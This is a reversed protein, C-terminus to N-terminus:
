RLQACYQMVYIVEELGYNGDGSVDAEPFVIDIEIGSILQLGKIADELDLVGDDDIDGPQVDALVDVLIAATAVSTDGDSETAIATVTLTFDRGDGSPTITLGPLQDPNLTWSGDFNNEGASLNAGSPVNSIRIALTESGDPDNLSAEISLPIPTDEDGSAEPVVTLNPISALASVVVAIEHDTTATDANATEVSTASLTLTFDDGSDPVPTLALEALLDASVTWIGGGNDTGVSLTAGIPVGSIEVPNLTESGDTDVLAVSEINLPIVTNENGSVEAPASVAPPDAVANVTVEIDAMAEATDNNATEIARVTVTLTFDTDSNAPPTVSLGSLLAPAITWTGNANDLGASLSAGDPVGSVTANDLTESGDTDILAPSEMSLPIEADEAGGIAATVNLLPTNAVPHIVLTYTAPESYAMGDTARYVFTQTGSDYALPTYTFEGTGANVIDATGNAPPTVIGFTLSDNELDGGVLFADVPTNEDTEFTIDGVSPPTEMPFFYAAGSNAGSSRENYAGALVIDGSASVACGLLNGEDGDSATRKSRFEWTGINRRYIYVAGADPADEDDQMAGVVAHDSTITVGSGFAAGATGDAATLKGQNTWGSVGRQFIYASGSGSGMDDDGEAGVIMLDGAICVTGGFYDFAASDGGMLRAQRTWTGSRQFMYVAGSDEGAADSRDAGIAAYDGSISVARGFFDFAAPTDATLKAQETWSAGSRYFIYAAGYYSGDGDGEAGVIAYAGSIAVSCGFNDSAAGDSPTLKAQQTWSSGSRLFVYASGSGSGNDDDGPAGVIAYDGSIGASRGFNDMSTGDSATLKSSQTWSGGTDNFVYAAGSGNGSASDGEAGVIAYNGSVCVSIGFKKGATGDSPLIKVENFLSGNVQRVEITQPNNQAVDATVTITATRGTDLNEEYSVAMTGANTGSEGSTIALWSDSSEATWNMDGLGTNSVQFVASGPLMPVDKRVPTLSLVPGTAQVIDVFAPSNAADAYVILQAQRQAGLNPNCIMTVMGNNMGSNAGSIPIWDKSSTANWTMDGSGTNTIQFSYTGGTNPIEIESPTASLAPADNQTISVTKTAIIALPATVTITGTRPQGPNATFSIGINGNDIGSAGSAITIWSDNSVATWEMYSGAMMNLVNLVTSGSTAGVNQSEPVVSLVPRANQTVTIAFPSDVAGPATVTITGTREEGSNVGCEMTITGFDVGSAGDTITIWPTDSVATWNMALEGSNSVEFTLTDGLVEARETAPSVNLISINVSAAQIVTLTQPSNEAGPAIITITGTRQVGDNTEYTATVTGTDTGSNGDTIALWASDSQATWNMTGPGINSVEFATSGNEAGVSYSLPNVSLIPVPANQRIELVTPSNLAGPATVVVTGTREGGSNAAYGLSITGSDVGPSGGTITIWADPSSATWNMVGTGANEVSFSLTGATALVNYLEPTVNLAPAPESQRIEVTAPSGQAGSASVTVTGTRASGSNAEYAVTLAANGTGSSQGVISLWAENAAATWNLTGAGSNQIDFRTSGSQSFVEQFEPTVTLQPVQDAFGDYVYAAGQDANGPAGAIIHSRTISVASGFEDSSANDSAELKQAQDWESGVRKFVYVSEGLPDGSSGIAAFEGDVSVHAGFQRSKAGDAAALETQQIWAGGEYSFVYAAGFDSDAADKGYAGVIAHTGSISVSGGFFDNAAGNDATLKASQSWAGGSRTFIYASGSQAGNDDDWSAGIIAYDGSIAVSQGFIDNTAGDGPHLRQRQTWTGGSLNFVYAAGTQAGRAGVIAWTDEIAVANGFVANESADEATLKAQQTWSKSGGSFIYVAGANSGGDDEFPAGVVVYGPYVAVSYGFRDDAEGDDPTLKADEVWESGDYNFVYVSGSGTGNDDDDPAGVAAMSGSISVSFGFSDDKDGDSATLKTEAARLATLGFFLVSLITWFQLQRKM